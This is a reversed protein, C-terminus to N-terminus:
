PKPAIVVRLVGPSPTHPLEPALIAGSVDELLARRLAVSLEDVPTAAQKEEDAKACMVVTIGTPQGGLAMQSPVNAYRPFGPTVPKLDSNTWGAKQLLSVLQVALQFTEGDDKPFMVEVPFPPKGELEKLFLEENIRRPGIRARLQELALKAQAAEKELQAARLNAKAIERQAMSARGSANAALAMSSSARNEAKSVKDDSIQQLRSSADGAKHAFRDEGLVGAVIIFNCIILLATELWSKEASYVLLVLIEAFLGAVIIWASLRTRQATKSVINRLIGEDSTLAIPSFLNRLRWRFLRHNIHAIIRMAKNAM